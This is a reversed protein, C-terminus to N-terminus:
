PSAEEAPSSRGPREQAVVERLIAALDELDDFRLKEGTRVREVVGPLRGRAGPTLRVVFSVPGREVVGAERPRAMPARDGAPRRPPREPRMTSRSRARWEHVELVEQGHRVTATIEAQAPGPEFRTGRDAQVQV